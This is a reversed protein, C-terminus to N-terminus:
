MEKGDKLEYVHKEGSCMGYAMPFPNYLKISINSLTIITYYLLFLAFSHSNNFLPILINPMFLEFWIWSKTTHTMFDLFIKNLEFIGFRQIRMKLSTLLLQVKNLGRIGPMLLHSSLLRSAETILFLLNLTSHIKFCSVQNKKVSGKFKEIIRKKRLPILINM